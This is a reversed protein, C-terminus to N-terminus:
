DIFLHQTIHQALREIERNARKRHFGLDWFLPAYRHSFLSFCLEFETNFRGQLDWYYCFPHPSSSSFEAMSYEEVCQKLTRAVNVDSVKFYVYPFNKFVHGQCSAITAVGEINNLVDVLPQIHPEIVHYPKRKGFLTICSEYLFDKLSPYEYKM